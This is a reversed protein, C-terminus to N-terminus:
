GPYHQDEQFSASQLYLAIGAVVLAPFVWTWNFTVLAPISVLILLLATLSIFPQFDFLAGLLTILMLFTQIITLDISWAALASQQWALDLDPIVTSWKESEEASDSKSVTPYLAWFFPYRKGSGILLKFVVALVAANLAALPWVLLGRPAILWERHYALAVALVALVVQYYHNPLGLGIVGFVLAATGAVASSAAVNKSLRFDTRRWGLKGELRAVREEISLSPTEKRPAETM